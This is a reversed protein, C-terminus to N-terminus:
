DMKDDFIAMATREVLGHVHQESLHSYRKVMSLTKHGLVAAIEATTAGNMALYSACTHRLDHFRFNEIGATRRADRWAEDFYYYNTSGTTPHTFIRDTDIRRVKSLKRLERTVPSVLTLTRRERNKTRHLSATRKNWDIDTWRLGLIEGKRAGTTLALLVIALLHPHESAECAKLLRNREDESLFRVRANDESLRSVRRVPNTDLWQWEKEAMTCAHSLLALYRNVTAASRDAELEDRIEVIAAPTLQHLRLSGLRAIWFDAYRIPNAQDRKKPIESRKYRELLDKVTRRKSEASPLHKGEAIAAEVRAAWKQAESKTRFTASQVHGDRRVIANYRTGKAGVRKRITAM